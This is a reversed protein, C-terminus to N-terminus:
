QKADTATDATVTPKTKNRLAKIADEKEKDNMRPHKQINIAHGTIYREECSGCIPEVTGHNRLVDYDSIRLAVNQNGCGPCTGIM